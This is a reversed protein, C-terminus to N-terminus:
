PLAAPGPSNELGASEMDQPCPSGELGINEMDWKGM